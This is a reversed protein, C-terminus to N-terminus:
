WRSSNSEKYGMEFAIVRESVEGVHSLLFCKWRRPSLSSRARHNGQAVEIQGIVM